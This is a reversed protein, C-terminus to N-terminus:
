RIKGGTKAENVVQEIYDFIANLERYTLKKDRLASVVLVGVRRYVSRPIRNAQALNTFDDLLPIIREKNLTMYAEPFSQFVEEVFGQAAIDIAGKVVSDRNAWLVLGGLVLLWLLFGFGALFGLRFFKKRLAKKEISVLIQVAREPSVRDEGIRYAPL